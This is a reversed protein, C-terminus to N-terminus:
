FKEPRIVAFVLYALLGLAIVCIILTEMAAPAEASRRASFRTLPARPSSAM